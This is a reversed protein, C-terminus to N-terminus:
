RINCFWKGIFMKACIKLVFFLFFMIGNKKGSIKEGNIFWVEGCCREAIIENDHILLLQQQKEEKASKLGVKKECAFHFKKLFYLKHIVFYKKKFFHVRVLIARVLKRNILWYQPKMKMWCFKKAFDSLIQSQWLLLPTFYNWIYFLYNHNECIRNSIGWCKTINKPKRQNKKALGRHWRLLLQERWLWNVCDVPVLGCSLTALHRKDILCRGETM